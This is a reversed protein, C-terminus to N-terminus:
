MCSLTILLIKIHVFFAKIRIQKGPYKIPVQIDNMLDLSSLICM